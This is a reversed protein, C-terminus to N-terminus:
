KGNPGTSADGKIAEGEAIINATSNTPATQQCDTNDISPPMAVPSSGPSSGFDLAVQSGTSAHIQRRAKVLLAVLGDQTKTAFVSM